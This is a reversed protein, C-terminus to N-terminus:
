STEQLYNNALKAFYQNIHTKFQNHEYHSANEFTDYISKYDVHNNLLNIKYDEYSAIAHVCTVSKNEYNKIYRAKYFKESVNFSQDITFLGGRVLHNNLVYIPCNTLKSVATDIGNILILDDFNLETQGLTKFYEIAAINMYEKNRYRRVRPADHLYENLSVRNQFFQPNDVCLTIPLCNNKMESLSFLYNYVSMFYDDVSDWLSVICIESYNLFLSLAKDRDNINFDILETPTTGTELYYITFLNDEYISYSYANIPNGHLSYASSSPKEFIMCADEPMAVSNIFSNLKSNNQFIFLRGM